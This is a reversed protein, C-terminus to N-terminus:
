RVSPFSGTKAQEPNPPHSIPVGGTKEEGATASPLPRPKARRPHAPTIVSM